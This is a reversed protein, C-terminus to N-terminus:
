RWLEAVRWANARTRKRPEFHSWKSQPQKGSSVVGAFKQEFYSRDPLSHAIAARGTPPASAQVPRATHSIHFAGDVLGGGNVPSPWVDTAGVGTALDLESTEDLRPARFNYLQSNRTMSSCKHLELM